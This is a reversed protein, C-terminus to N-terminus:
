VAVYGFSDFFVVDANEDFGLKKFLHCSDIDITSSVQQNLFYATGVVSIALTIKTEINKPLFIPKELKICGKEGKYLFIQFNFKNIDNVAVTVNLLMKERLNRDAKAYCGLFYVKVLNVNVKPVVHLTNSFSQLELNTMRKLNRRDSRALYTKILPQNHVVECRASTETSLNKPIKNLAVRTKLKTVNAELVALKEDTTLLNPPLETTQLPTLSLLRLYPLLRRM